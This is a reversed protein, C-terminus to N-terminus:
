TIFIIRKGRNLAIEPSMNNAQCIRPVLNNFDWETRASYELLASHSDKVNQFTYELFLRCELWVSPYKYLVSWSSDRESETFMGLHGCVYTNENQKSQLSEEVFVSDKSMINLGIKDICGCKKCAAVFKSLSSALKKNAIDIKARLVSSERKEM